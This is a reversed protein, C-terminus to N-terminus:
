NWKGVREYEGIRCAPLYNGPFLVSDSKGQLANSFKARSAEGVWM